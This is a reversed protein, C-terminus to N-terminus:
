FEYEPVCSRKGMWWLKEQCCEDPTAFIDEWFTAPGGCFEGRGEPCNMVCQGGGDGVDYRVFWEQKSSPVYPDFSEYKRVSSAQVGETTTQQVSSKVRSHTGHDINRNTRIKLLPAFNGDGDYEKSALECEEGGGDEDRSSIRFSVYRQDKVHASWLVADSVIIEIWENERLTTPSDIPYRPQASNPAMDFPSTHWSVTEEDFKGSVVKAGVANDCNRLSYVKLTAEFYNSRVNDYARKPLAFHLLTVKDHHDYQLTTRNYNANPRRRDIYADNTARLTISDGSSIINSSYRQPNKSSNRSGRSAINSSSARPIAHQQTKGARKKKAVARKSKARQKAKVRKKEAHQSINNNVKGTSSRGHTGERGESRRRRRLQPTNQRSPSPLECEGDTAMWRSCPGCATWGLEEGIAHVVSGGDSRREYDPPFTNCYASNPGFKCQYVTGSISATRGAKYIKSPNYEAPCERVLRRTTVHQLHNKHDRLHHHAAVSLEILCVVGLLAAIFHTEM